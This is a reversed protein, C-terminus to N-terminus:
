LCFTWIMGKLACSYTSSCENCSFKSSKAINYVIKELLHLFIAFKACKLHNKMTSSISKSIPFKRKERMKVGVWGVM